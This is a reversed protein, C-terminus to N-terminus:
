RNRTKIEIRFNDKEEPKAKTPVNKMQEMLKLFAYFREAPSLALFRAEQEAKSEEKSGYKIEM